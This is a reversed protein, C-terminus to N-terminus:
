PIVAMRAMIETLRNFAEALDANSGRSSEILIHKTGDPDITVDLGKIEQEGFIRIYKFEGYRLSSCGTVILLIIIAVLKM